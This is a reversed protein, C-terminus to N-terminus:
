SKRYGGVIGMEDGTSDFHLGSEDNGGEDGGSEARGGEGGGSAALGAGVELGEGTCETADGSGGYGVGTDGVALELDFSVGKPVNPSRQRPAAVLLEISTRISRVSAIRSQVDALARRLLTHIDRPIQTAVHALSSIYILAVRCRRSACRTSLSIRGVSTVCISSVSRVVSISSVSRVVGVCISVTRSRRAVRLPGVLLRDAHRANLDCVQRFGEISRQIM